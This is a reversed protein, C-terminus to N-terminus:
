ARSCCGIMLAILAAAFPPLALHQTLAPLLRAMSGLTSHDSRIPRWRQDCSSRRRRTVFKVCFLITQRPCSQAVTATNHCHPTTAESLCSPGHYPLQAESCPLQSGTLRLQRMLSNERAPM